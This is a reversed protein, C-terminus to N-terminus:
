MYRTVHLAWKLFSCPRYWAPLAALGPGYVRFDPEVTRWQVCLSNIKLMTNGDAQSATARWALRVPSLASRRVTARRRPVLDAPCRRAGRRDSNFLAM